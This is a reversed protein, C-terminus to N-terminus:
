LIGGLESYLEDYHAAVIPPSFRRAYEDQGQKGLTTALARDELLLVLEAALAGVDGGTVFRAADVTELPGGKALVLPVGLALSEIVVLPIDVKGYLDDVPFAVVSAAALLAHLDDIEGVHVVRASVAPDQTERVVAARAAGALPTKARCAFVFTVDRVKALVQAAARAVTMAGTSVEYDGPYVVLPGSGLSYRLRVNADDAPSSPAPARACPPIVRLSKAPAGAGIVRARMWESQVVVRDGFLLRPVESWRKPASAITQITAGRWGRARRASRAFRAAASSAPNPASVFHWIDHADGVLLRALVRLNAGLAPAYRGSATYIPEEHLPIGRDNCLPVSGPCTLVTPEAHKLHTSIDRVLNKSGDHWPPVVPKSVFLVRL